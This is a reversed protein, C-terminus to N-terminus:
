QSDPQLRRAAADIMQDMPRQPPQGVDAPLRRMSTLLLLRKGVRAIGTELWYDTQSAGPGYEAVYVRGEGAVSLQATRRSLSLRPVTPGPTFERCNTVVDASYADYAAAASATDPFEAVAATMWTDLVVEADASRGDFDRRFVATAGHDALGQTFCPSPSDQGDGPHTDRTAWWLDSSVGMVTEQETILNAESLPAGAVPSPDIQGSECGHAAFVCMDAVLARSEGTVTAVQQAVGQLNSEVDLRTGSVANGVRVLQFVSAQGIGGDAYADTWTLAQDAGTDEGSFTRHVTEAKKAPLATDTTPESPCADLRQRVSDLAAAAQSESGFLLLERDQSPGSEVGPVEAALRDISEAPWVQRACLSLDGLGPGDRSVSVQGDALASTDIGATLPFDAPIETLWPRPHQTRDIGSPSPAPELEHAGRRADLIALPTAVLAVVAAAGVGALLRHRRRLRVGRRRIESPPLPDVPGEPDFNSLVDIPDRM